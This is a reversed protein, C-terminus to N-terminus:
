RMAYQPAGCKKINWGQKDWCQLEFRPLLMRKDELGIGRPFRQEGYPVLANRMERMRQKAITHLSGRPAFIAARGISSATQCFGYQAGATSFSGYVRTGFQDLATQGAKPLKNTRLFYKTLTAYTSKLEGAHDIM